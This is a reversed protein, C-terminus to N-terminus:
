VDPKIEQWQKLSIKEVRGTKEKLTNVEIRVIDETDCSTYNPDNCNIPSNIEVMYNHYVCYVQIKM